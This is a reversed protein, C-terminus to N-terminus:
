REPLTKLEGATTDLGGAFTSSDTSEDGVTIAGTNLFTTDTSISSGGLLSVGYGQSTTTLTNATLFGDFQVTQSNETDSIDLTTSQLRVISLQEM